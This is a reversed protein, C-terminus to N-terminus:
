KRKNRDAMYREIDAKKDALAKRLAADMQYIIARDQRTLLIGQDACYDRLFGPTIPDDLGPLFQRLNWYSNVLYDSKWDPLYEDIMDERGSREMVERLTM